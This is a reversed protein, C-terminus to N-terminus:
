GASVTIIQDSAAAAVGYAGAAGIPAMGLAIGGPSAAGLPAAAAELGPSGGGVAPDYGYYYPNNAGDSSGAPKSSGQSYPFLSSQITSYPSFFTGSVQM